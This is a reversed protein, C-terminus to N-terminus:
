SMGYYITMPIDIKASEENQPPSLINLKTDGKQEIVPTNKDVADNKTCMCVHYLVYSGAPVFIIAFLSLYTLFVGLKGNIGDDFRLTNVPNKPDCHCNFPAQPLTLSQKEFTQTYNVGNYDYKWTLKLAKFYVIKPDVCDLGDFNLECYRWTTRNATYEVHNTLECPVPEFNHTELKQGFSSNYVLSSIPVLIGMILLSLGFLTVTRSQCGCCNENRSM